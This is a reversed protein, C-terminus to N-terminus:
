QGSVAAIKEFREISFPKLEDPTRSNILQEAILRATVPALLIGNRFHGTALFLNDVGGHGLAPLHDPTDPRLGSWMEVIESDQLSPAIEIAARLLSNVGGATNAKRFGVHEVTAGALIRGDNRPVLYCKSSHITRAIKAVAGSLAIM